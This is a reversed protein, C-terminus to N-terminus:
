QNLFRGALNMVDNMDMDGDGDADLFSTLVPNAEQEPNENNAGTKLLSLVAPIAIPLMAQITAANLGSKEAIAPVIQALQTQSFLAFVAQPNASTGSFQNVLNKVMDEGESERKEQLASRVYGGLMSLLMQSKDPDAGYISGTQQITGIINSLGAMSAQQTPNDIAKLIQNFLGM